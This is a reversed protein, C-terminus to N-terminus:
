PSTSSAASGPASAPVARSWSSSCGLPTACTHSGPAGGGDVKTSRVPTVFEVGAGELKRYDDDLRFVKVGVYLIGIDGWEIPSPPEEQETSTHQVIEIAGGGAANMATLMRM